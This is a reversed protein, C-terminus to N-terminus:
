FSPFLAAAWQLRADDRESCLMLFIHTISLAGDAGRSTAPERPAQNWRDAESRRGRFQCDGGLNGKPSAARM